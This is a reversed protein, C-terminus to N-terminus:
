LPKVAEVALHRFWEAFDTKLLLQGDVRYASRVFQQLKEPLPPLQQLRQSESLVSQDPLGDIAFCVWAPETHLVFQWERRAPSEAAAADEGLYRHLDYVTVLNGRLNALGLCFSETHPIPYVTLSEVLEGLVADPLVLDFQGVSVTRKRAATTPTISAELDLWNDRRAPSVGLVDVARQLEM